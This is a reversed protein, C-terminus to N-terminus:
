VEIVVTFGNGVKDDTDNMYVVNMGLHEVLKIFTEPIWVNWHKDINVDEHLEREELEQISTLPKDIDFIRMKHPVIMFIYKAAVRQWERLASIPKYFHEIVHSNIVYDFSNDDFPLISGDKIIIDAIGSDVIDANVTDLGFPNHESAGIELGKMGDLYKHAIKSEKFKM